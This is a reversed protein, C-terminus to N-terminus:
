HSHACNSQNVVIAVLGAIVAVGLVLGTVYCAISRSSYYTNGPREVECARCTSTKAKYAELSHPEPEPPAEAALYEEEPVEYSSIVDENYYENIVYTEDSNGLNPLAITLLILFTLAKNVM